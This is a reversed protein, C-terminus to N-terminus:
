LVAPVMEAVAETVPDPTLLAAGIREALGGQSLMNLHHSYQAAGLQSLLLIRLGLFTAVLIALPAALPVNVRRAPRHEIVGNANLRTVYGGALRRHRNRIRQHRAAFDRSGETM